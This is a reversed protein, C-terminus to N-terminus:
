IIMNMIEGRWERSKRSSSNDLHHMRQHSGSSRTATDALDGHCLGTKWEGLLPKMGAKLNKMKLLGIKTRGNKKLYIVQEM